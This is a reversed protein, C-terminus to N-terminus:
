ESEESPEFHLNLRDTLARATVILVNPIRWYRTRGEGPADLAMVEDGRYANDTKPTATIDSQVKVSRAPDAFNRRVPDYEPGASIM